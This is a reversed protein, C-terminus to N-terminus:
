EIHNDNMILNFLKSHSINIPNIITCMKQQNIQNNNGMENFGKQGDWIHTTLLIIIEKSKMEEWSTCIHLSTNRCVESVLHVPAAYSHIRCPWRSICLHNTCLCTVWFRHVQPTEQCSCAVMCTSSLLKIIHFTM